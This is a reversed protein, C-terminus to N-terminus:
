NVLPNRAPRRRLYEMYQRDFDKFPVDLTHGGGDAYFVVTGRSGIHGEDEVPPEWQTIERLDLNVVVDCWRWEPETGTAEARNPEVTTCTLRRSRLLPTGDPLITILPDPM